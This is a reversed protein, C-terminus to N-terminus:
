PNRRAAEIRARLSGARTPEPAEAKRKEAQRKEERAAALEEGELLMSKAIPTLEVSVEAEDDEVEVAEKSQLLRAATAVLRGALWARATSIM